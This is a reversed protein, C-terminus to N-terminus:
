NVAREDADALASSGGGTRCRHTRQLLAAAVAVLGAKPREDDVQPAEQHNSTQSYPISVFNRQM